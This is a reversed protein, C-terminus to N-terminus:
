ALTTHTQTAGTAMNTRSASWKYFATGMVALSVTLNTMRFIFGGLMQDGVPDFSPLNAAAEAYSPYLPQNAIFLFGLVPTQAVMLLFFFLIQVGYQLPPFRKSRSAISWWVLASTCLISLHGVFHLSGSKLSAEYLQPLHLYSLCVTFSTGAVVPNVLFAFAPRFYRIKKAPADVMWGPIGLVLLLPSLYMLLNHQFMHASFHTSKGLSDLPSGVALYFTALGIAFFAAEKRPYGKVRTFLGRLPGALLSYVWGSALIAGILLPQTDWQNWNTM